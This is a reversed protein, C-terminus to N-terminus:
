KSSHSKNRTANKNLREIRQRMTVYKRRGGKQVYITKGNIRVAVTFHDGLLSKVSRNLGDLRKKLNKPPLDDAAVRYEVRYFEVAKQDVIKGKENEEGGLHPLGVAVEFSAAHPCALWGWLQLQQVQAEHVTGTDNTIAKLELLQKWIDPDKPIKSSM